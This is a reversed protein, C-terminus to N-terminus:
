GEIHSGKKLLLCINKSFHKCPLRYGSEPRSFLIEFGAARASREAEKFGMLYYYRQVTKEGAKWPIFINKPKLWFRPQYRNWFTIFAEGGPKLIRLLEKLGAIVEDRNSLHHYTAVAIAWDFHDDAFPLSRIDAQSLEVYFGFKKAYRSAMKLMNASFDVGYLQFNDKFALFDAGHACGLNVLTGKEWRSALSEL